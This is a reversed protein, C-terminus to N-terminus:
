KRWLNLTPNSVNLLSMLEETPRGEATMLIIKVRLKQKPGVARSKLWRQLTNKDKDGLLIKM